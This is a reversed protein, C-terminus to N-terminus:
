DGFSINKPKADVYYIGLSELKWLSEEVEPWRDGFLEAQELLTKEEEAM